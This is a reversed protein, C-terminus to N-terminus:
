QNYPLLYKISIFFKASVKVYLTIYDFIVKYGIVYYWNHVFICIYSTYIISNVFWNNEYILIGFM